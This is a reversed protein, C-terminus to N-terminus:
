YNFVRTSAIGQADWGLSMKYVEMTREGERAVKHVDQDKTVYVPYDEYDFMDMKVVMHTVDPDAAGIDFWNKIDELMAAM